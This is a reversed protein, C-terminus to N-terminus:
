SDASAKLDKTTKSLVDYCALAKSKPEHRQEAVIATAQSRGIWSEALALLPFPIELVNEMLKKEIM